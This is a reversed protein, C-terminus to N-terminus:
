APDPVVIYWIFHVKGANSVVLWWSLVQGKLASAKIPDISANAELAKQAAAAAESATSPLPAVQQDLLPAVSTPPVEIRAKVLPLPDVM